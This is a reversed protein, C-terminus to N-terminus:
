PTYFSLWVSLPCIIGAGVCHWMTHCLVYDNWKREKVAQKGLYWCYVAPASMLPWLIHINKATLICQLSFFMTAHWRDAGHTWHDVGSYYWDSALSLATQSYFLVELLIQMFSARKLVLTPVLFMSCSLGIMTSNANKKRWKLDTKSFNKTMSSVHNNIIALMIYAETKKKFQNLLEM